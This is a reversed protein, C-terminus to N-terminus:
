ASVCPPFFIATDQGLCQLIEFGGFRVQYRKGCAEISVGAIRERLFGQLRFIIIPDALGDASQGDRHDRNEFAAVAIIQGVQDECEEFTEVTTLTCARKRPHLRVIEAESIKLFMLSVPRLFLRASAVGFFWGPMVGVDRVM